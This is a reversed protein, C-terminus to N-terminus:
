RKLVISVNNNNSLASPMQLLEEFLKADDFGNIDQLGVVLTELTKGNRLVMRIFSALLKWMDEKRCNWMIWGFDDSTPFVEDYGSRLFQDANLGQVYLYSDLNSDEIGCKFKKLGPSNQLLRTIGPIVSQVLKTEVTLTQVKFTPFTVGRFEALSLIHLFIGGLSFREINQLKALMELVMIQIFDTNLLFARDAISIDFNAKTLSSVDVLTCPAESCTLILNHIHPGVIKIPEQDRYNIRTGSNCDIELTRLSPSKSLDLPDPLGRFMFLTLTELVPCGSLINAMSKDKDLYCFSLTLNRM